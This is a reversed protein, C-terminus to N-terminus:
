EKDVDNENEDKTEESTSPGSKKNKNKNKKKKKKGLSTALLQQLEKDQVSFESKVTETDFLPHTLRSIGNAGIYAIVKFHAVYEGEKEMLVPFSDLVGHSLPEVIGMRAKKEDECARLTFPFRGFKKAVEGLLNRSTKMKLQYNQDSKQYITTRQESGKAKGDGTSFIVDLAWMDYQALNSEKIDPDGCCTSKCSSNRLRIEGETPNQVITTKTVLENQGMRYSLVSEVPTCKFEAAVKNLVETVTTTLAGAKLSRVAAECATYTATLVDAQRGTVPLEKTAGVSITSATVAIFGDMHAGLNIKVLDGTKIKQPPDSELPSNHCITNNISVCTPFAIGRPFLKGDVKKTFVKTLADTIFKDGAMCVGRVDAGDVCLTTIYKIANNAVDAAANYKSLDQVTPTTM